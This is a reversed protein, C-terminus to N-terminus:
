RRQEGGVNWVGGRLNYDVGARWFTDVQGVSGEIVFSSSSIVGGSAAAPVRVVRVPKADRAVVDDVYWGATDIGGSAVEELVFALGVQQGAYVSLNVEVQTWDSIPDTITLVSQWTLGGDSSAMVQGESGELLAFQQWFTLLPSASGSLDLRDVLILSSDGAYGRWGSTGSHATETVPQWGNVARWNATPAEMDDSFPLTHVVPPVVDRV